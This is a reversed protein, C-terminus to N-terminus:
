VFRAFLARMWGRLKAEVQFVSTAWTGMSPATHQKLTAVADHAYPRATRLGVCWSRSLASMNSGDLKYPVGTCVVCPLPNVFGTNVFAQWVAGLGRRGAKTDDILVTSGNRTM